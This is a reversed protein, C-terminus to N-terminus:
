TISLGTYHGWKFILGWREGNELHWTETGKSDGESGM